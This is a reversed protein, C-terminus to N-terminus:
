AQPLDELEALAKLTRNRQQLLKTMYSELCIREAVRGLIGLPASFEFRDKMVTYDGDRKFSHNHRMSSFAGEIMVDEFMTPRVLKTMRVSLRQTIGFHRAEWMVSDGLEMLGSTKGAVAREKSGEMSQVHADISRALDFVREVPAVIKTELEIITM